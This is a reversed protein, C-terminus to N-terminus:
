EHEDAPQTAFYQALWVAVEAPSADPGHGTAHWMGAADDHRRYYWGSGDHMVIQLDTAVPIHPSLTLTFWSAREAPYTMTEIDRPPIGLAEALAAHASAALQALNSM